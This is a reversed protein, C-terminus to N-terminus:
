ALLKLEVKMKDRKALTKEADTMSGESAVVGTTADRVGGTAEKMKDSIIEAVAQKKDNFMKEGRKLFTAVKVDDADVTFKGCAKLKAKLLDKAAKRKDQKKVDVDTVIAEGTASKAEDMLNADDCAALALADTATAMVCAVAKDGIAKAGAKKKLSVLKTKDFETTSKDGEVKKLAEKVAAQKQNDTYTEGDVVANATAINTEMFAKVAADERAKAVDGEKIDGAIKGTAKTFMDTEATKCADKATGVAAGTELDAADMCANMKKGFSAVGAENMRKKIKNLDMAALRRSGKTKGETAAVLPEVDTVCKRTKTKKEEATGTAKETCAEMAESTDAEKGKELDKAVDADKIDAVDKGEAEAKAIKAHIIENTNCLVKAANDAALDICAQKANAMSKQAGKKMVKAIMRNIKKTKEGATGTVLDGLGTAKFAEVKAAKCEDSGRTKGSKVCAGFADAVEDKATELLGGMFEKNAERIGAADDTFTNGTADGMAKRGDVLCGAFTAGDSDEMCTKMFDGAAKNGSEKVYKRAETHSMDIKGTTLKLKNLLDPNNAPDGCTAVGVGGAAKCAGVTEAVKKKAARVCDKQAKIPDAVEGTLDARKTNAATKCTAFATKMQAGTAFELAGSVGTKPANTDMCNEFDDAVAVLTNDYMEKEARTDTWNPKGCTEKFADRKAVVAAGTGKGRCDNKALLIAATTADADAGTAEGATEFCAEFKDKELGKASEKVRGESMDADGLADRALAISDSHCAKVATKRTTGTSVIKDLCVGVAVGTDGKAGKVVAEKYETNSIDDASKFGLAAAYAQKIEPKEAGM